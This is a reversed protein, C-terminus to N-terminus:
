PRTVTWDEIITTGFVKQGVVSKPKVKMHELMWNDPLTELSMLSNPSVPTDQLRGADDIIAPRKDISRSLYLCRIHYAFYGLGSHPLSPRALESEFIM